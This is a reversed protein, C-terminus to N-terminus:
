QQGNKFAMLALGDEAIAKGILKYLKVRILRHTCIRDHRGQGIFPTDKKNQM